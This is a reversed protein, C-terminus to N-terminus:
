AVSRNFRALYLAASLGAPGAGIVLVEYPQATMRYNSRVGPVAEIPAFAMGPCVLLLGLQRKSLKYLSRSQGKSWRGPFKRSKIVIAASCGSFIRWTRPLRKM